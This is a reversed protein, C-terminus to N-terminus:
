VGMLVDWFNYHPALVIPYSKDISVLAGDVRLQFQVREVLRDPIAGSRAYLQEVEIRSKMHRVKVDVPELVVGRDTSHRLRISEVLVDVNHEERPKKFGYDLVLTSTWREPQDRPRPIPHAPHHVYAIFHPYGWTAYNPTACQDTTYLVTTFEFREKREKHYFSPCDVSTVQKDVAYDYTPASLLATCSSIVVAAVGL